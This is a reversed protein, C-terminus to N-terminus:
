KVLGLERKKKVLYNFEIQFEESDIFKYVTEKGTGYKFYRFGLYALGNALYPNDIIVYFTNNM